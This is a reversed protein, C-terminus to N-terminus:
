SGDRVAQAWVIQGKLFEGLSSQKLTEVFEQVADFSEQPTTTLFDALDSIDKQDLGVTLEYAPM